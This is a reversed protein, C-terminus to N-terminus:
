RQEEPVRASLHASSGVRRSCSRDRGPIGAGGMREPGTTSSSFCPQWSELPSRHPTPCPPRSPRQQTPRPGPARRPGPRPRPHVDDGVWRIGLTPPTDRLLRRTRQPESTTPAVTTMSPPCVGQEVWPTSARGLPALRGPLAPPGDPCGRAAGRHAGRVPLPSGSVRLTGPMMPSSACRCSADGEGPLPVRRATCPSSTSSSPTVPSCRPPGSTLPTATPRSTLCSTSPAGPFWQNQQRPLHAADEVSGTSGAVLELCGALPVPDVPIWASTGHGDVNHPVAPGPAVPPASSAGGEQRPCPRPLPAGPSASSSRQSKRPGRRCPWRPSRPIDQWRRFDEVLAPDDVGSAIQALM